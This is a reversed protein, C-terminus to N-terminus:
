ARIRGYMDRELRIAEPGGSLLAAVVIAIGVIANNWFTPGGRESVFFALVYVLAGVVATAYRARYLRTSLLAFAVTLVGGGATYAFQAGGHPWAFASLFLWVGILVSFIQATM